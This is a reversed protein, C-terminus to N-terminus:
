LMSPLESASVRAESSLKILLSIPFHTGGTDKLNDPMGPPEAPLSDSQLAPSRHKIETDPLDGSSPFPLGIWYEQRPFKMSLLTQCAVTWPTM